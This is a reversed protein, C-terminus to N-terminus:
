EQLLGAARRAVRIGIAVGMGGLRVAAVVRESTREVIPSKSSGMGMIGSWRRAITYNTGPLIVEDLLRVLADQILPTTGEQATTEGTFDLNRGGGLLVGGAHDRFYYFGEDYHYTGRLRLGPVPNTLLVQGRAPVVELQPLLEQTWANTAVVIRAAHIEASDALRILVANSGEEFGVVEACPRFLVGEAIAKRLLTNMLAGSDLPGELDTRALHELGAMGTRDLAQDDWHFVTKGFLPRILDNLADFREAVRTYLPDHARYVEHGGTPEFGIADDGLENRLELLGLWREEVRALMADAGENDMDALLESPSGFCAFGANKVSAGSPFPGRELVLVHHHPHARKHFLATFLGVIGGGIVALHPSRHFHGSEWISQM